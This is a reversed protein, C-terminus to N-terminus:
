ISNACSDAKKSCCSEVLKYSPLQCAKGSLQAEFVTTIKGASNYNLTTIHPTQNPQAGTSRFLQSHAKFARSLSSEASFLIVLLLLLRCKDHKQGTCIPGEAKLGDIYKPVGNKM